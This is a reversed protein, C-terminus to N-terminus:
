SYTNYINSGNDKLMNLYLKEATDRFWFTTYFKFTTHEKILRDANDVYRLSFNNLILEFNAPLQRGATVM